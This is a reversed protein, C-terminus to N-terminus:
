GLSEPDGQTVRTVEPGLAHTAEGARREEEYFM